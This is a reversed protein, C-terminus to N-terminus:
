HAVQRQCPSARRAATACGVEVRGSSACHRELARSAEPRPQCAECCYCTRSNIQWTKIAGDCRMCVAQNYIYRYVPFWCYIALGYTFVMGSVLKYVCCGAVSRPGCTFALRFGGQVVCCGAVSETPPAAARMTAVIGGKDQGKKASTKSKNKGVAAAECPRLLAM